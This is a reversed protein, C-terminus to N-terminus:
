CDYRDGTRLYFLEVAAELTLDEYYAENVTCEYYLNHYHEDNLVSVQTIQDDDERMIKVAHPNEMKDILKRILEKSAHKIFCYAGSSFGNNEPYSPDLYGFISLDSDEELTFIIEISSFRNVLRETLTKCNIEGSNSVLSM